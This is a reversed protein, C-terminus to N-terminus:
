YGGSGFAAWFRRGFGERQIPLVRQFIGYDRSVVQAVLEQFSDSVAVVWLGAQRDGLHHGRGEDGGEETPPLM